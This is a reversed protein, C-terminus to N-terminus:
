NITSIESLLIQPFILLHPDVFASTFAGKVDSNDRFWDVTFLDGRWGTLRDCGQVVLPIGKNEYSDTIIQVLDTASASIRPAPHFNKNNNLLSELTWGKCSLVKDPGKPPPRVITRDMTTSSSACLDCNGASASPLTQDASPLQGWYPDNRMLAARHEELRKPPNPSNTCSM